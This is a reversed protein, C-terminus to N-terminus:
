CQYKDAFPLSVADAKLREGLQSRITNVKGLLNRYQTEAHEKEVTKKELQGRIAEMAENHKEQIGQLSRRLEAVQDRLAAREEVLVDLRVDTNDPDNDRATDQNMKDENLGYGSDAMATADIERGQNGETKVSSLRRVAKSEVVGNDPPLGNSYAERGLGEPELRTAEDGPLPMAAELPRKPEHDEGEGDEVEHEDETKTGNPKYSDESLKAKAGGKRKKNRKNKFGIPM